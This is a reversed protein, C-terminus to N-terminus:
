RDSCRYQFLLDQDIQKEEQLLTGRIRHRDSLAVTFFPVRKSASLRILYPINTDASFMPFDLTTMEGDRIKSFPYKKYVVEEQTETNVISLYFEAKPSQDSTMYTPIRLDYIEGCDPQFTQELTSGQNIPLANERSPEWNKYVPLVCDGPTFLYMGCPVYYVLYMAVTVLSLIITTGIAVIKKLYPIRSRLRLQGGFLSFILLPIFPIFYRGQSLILDEVSQKIALRLAFTGFFLLLFELLLAVRTQTSYGELQWDHIVAAALTGWFLIYVITPIAYYSYGFSAAYDRLVLPLSSAIYSLLDGSFRIPDAFISQLLGSAMGSSLDRRAAEAQFQIITWGGVVFVFLAAIALWLLIMKRRSPFQVPKLLILLLVLPTSNPKVNFILFALLLTIWFAKKDITKKGEVLYLSWAVFLFSMGNTLPDASISVAQIMAMPALALVFLTWKFKPMLKIAFYGTIIYTFLYTFRLIWYLVLVPTRLFYGFVALLFAQPLYLIPSYTARTQHAIWDTGYIGLRLGEKFDVRTVPQLFQQQRYSVQLMTQPIGNGPASLWRNPILQGRSMEFIRALHTEEDYGAGAPMLFVWISGIILALFVFLRSPTTLISRM